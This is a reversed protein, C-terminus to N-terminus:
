KWWRRKYIKGNRIMEREEPTLNTIASEEYMTKEDPTDSEEQIVAMTHENAQIIM